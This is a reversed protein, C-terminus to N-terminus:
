LLLGIYNKNMNKPFSTELEIFTTKVFKSSPNKILNVSLHVPIVLIIRYMVLFFFILSSGKVKGASIEGRMNTIVRGRLFFCQEQSGSHSTVYRLHHLGCDCGVHFFM